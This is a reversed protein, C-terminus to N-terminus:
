FGIECRVFPGSNAFNEGQWLFDFLQYGAEFRLWRQTPPTWSVGLEARANFMGVTRSTTDRFDLPVDFGQFQAQYRDTSRGLLLAVDARGFLGVTTEPFYWNLDVGFHPGAGAFSLRDSIWWGPFGTRLAHEVVAIRCGTQWQFTFGLWPGHLCGRYDLDLWHGELRTHSDSFLDSGDGSSGLYRYSALLANGREFRYGLTFLPAVTLDLNAVPESGDNLPDVNSLHPRPLFVEVGVFWGPPPRFPPADAAPLAAPNAAFAPTPPPGEPFPLAAPAVPLPGPDNSTSSQTFQQAQALLSWGGLLLLALLSTPRPLM